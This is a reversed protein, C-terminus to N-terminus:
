AIENARHALSAPESGAALTAEVKKLFAARIEPRTHNM